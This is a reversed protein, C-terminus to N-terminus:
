LFYLQAQGSPSWNWLPPVAASARSPGCPTDLPDHPDRPERHRRSGQPLWRGGPCALQHEGDVPSPLCGGSLGPALGVGEGGCACLPLSALHFRCKCGCPWTPLHRRGSHGCSFRSVLHERFTGTDCHAPLPSAPGLGATAGRSRPQRSPVGSPLRRGRRLSGPLPAGAAEPKRSPATPVLLLRLSPQPKCWPPASTWWELM